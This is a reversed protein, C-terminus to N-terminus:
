VREARGLNDEGSSIKEIDSVRSVKIQFRCHRLMFLLKVVSSLSIPMTPVISTFLAFKREHKRFDQCKRLFIALRIVSAVCM